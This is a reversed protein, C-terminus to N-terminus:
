PNVNELHISGDKLIVVDAGTKGAVAERIAQTIRKPLVTAWTVSDKGRAAAVAQFSKMYNDPVTASAMQHYHHPPDSLTFRTVQGLRQAHWAKHGVLAYFEVIDNTVLHDFAQNSQFKLTFGRKPVEGTGPKDEQFQNTQTKHEARQSKSREAKQAAQEAELERRSAKRAEALAQERLRKIQEVDQRLESFNSEVRQLEQREHEVQARLATLSQREEALKAQVQELTSRSAELKTKVERAKERARGLEQKLDRAQSIIRQRTALEAQITTRLENLVKRRQTIHEELKTVERRLQDRQELTPGRDKPTVPLAQVLAFIGVLVFGLLAMFRMVDTQLAEAETDFTGPNALRSRLYGRRPNM